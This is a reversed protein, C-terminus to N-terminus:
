RTRWELLACDNPNHRKICEERIHNRQTCDQLGAAVLVVLVAAVCVWFVAWLRDESRMTARESETRATARASKPWGNGVLAMGSLLLTIAFVLAASRLNKEQNPSM